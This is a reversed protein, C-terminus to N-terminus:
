RGGDEEDAAVAARQELTIRERLDPAPRKFILQGSPHVAALEWGANGLAAFQSDSPLSEWPEIHYEWRQHRGSM